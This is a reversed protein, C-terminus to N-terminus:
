FVIDDAVGRNKTFKFFMELGNLMTSLQELTKERQKAREYQKTLSEMIIDHPNDNFRIGEIECIKKSFEELVKYKKYIEFLVEGPPRDGYKGKIENVLEIPIKVNKSKM